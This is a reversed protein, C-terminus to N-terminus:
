SKPWQISGRTDASWFALPALLGWLAVTVAVAWIDFGYRLGIAFGVAMGILTLLIPSGFLIM